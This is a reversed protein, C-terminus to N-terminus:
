GLAILDEDAGWKVTIENNQELPLVTLSVMFIFLFLFDYHLVSETM